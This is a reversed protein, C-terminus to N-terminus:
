APRDSIILVRLPECSWCGKVYEKHHVQPRRGLMIGRIANNKLEQLTQNSSIEWKMVVPCWETSPRYVRLKGQDGLSFRTGIPLASTEWIQYANDDSKKKKLQDLGTLQGILSENILIATELFSYRLSNLGDPQRKAKQCRGGLTLNL